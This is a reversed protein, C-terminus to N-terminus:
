PHVEFSLAFPRQFLRKKLGKGVGVCGEKRRWKCFHKRIDGEKM